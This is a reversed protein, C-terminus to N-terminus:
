PAPPSVLQQYPTTVNADHQSCTDPPTAVVGAGAGADVVADATDVVVVVVVAAGVVAAGVVAAGVVAASVVVASVVVVADKTVYM